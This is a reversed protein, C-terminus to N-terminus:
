NAVVVGDVTVVTFVENTGTNTPQSLEIEAETGDPATGTGTAETAAWKDWTVATIQATTDACDTSVATPESVPAGFCDIFLVDSAAATRATTPTARTTTESSGTGLSAPNQETATDVKVESAQENHPSCATIAIGAAAILAIASPIRPTM